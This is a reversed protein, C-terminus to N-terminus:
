IAFPENGSGPFSRTSWAAFSRTAIARWGNPSICLSGNAHSRQSPTKLKSSWATKQAKRQASPDIRTALQKRVEDLRERATKLGIDPYIGLSIRKEKGAIRYKFRWLRGGSPVVELHLGRGDFLKYPKGRPATQEIKQKTLAM